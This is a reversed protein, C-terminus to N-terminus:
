TIMFNPCLVKTFTKYIPYITIGLIWQNNQITKSMKLIEFDNHKTTKLTMTSTIKNALLIEYYYWYKIKLDSTNFKIIDIFFLYKMQIGWERIIFFISIFLCSITSNPFDWLEILTKFYSMFVDIYWLASSKINKQHFSLQLAASPYLKQNSWQYWIYIDKWFFWLSSSWLFIM